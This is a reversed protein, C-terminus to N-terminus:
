RALKLFGDYWRRMAERVLAEDEPYKVLYGLTVEMTAPTLHGDSEDVLASVWEIAESIAPKKRLNLERLHAIVRAARAAFDAPVGVATTLIDVLAESSPFALDLWVIRRHFAPDLERYNNSTLFVYLTSRARITKPGDALDHVVLEKKDLYRLFFNTTHENLKDVEDIRVVTPRESLLSELLPTHNLYPMTYLNPRPGGPAATQADVIQRFANWSVGVEGSELESHCAVDVFHAGIAEAFAEPLRSKGIGPEGRLGVPKGSRLYSRLRRASMADLVYGRERLRAQLEDATWALMQDRVERQRRQLREFRGQNGWERWVLRGLRRLRPVYLPATGLAAATTLLM